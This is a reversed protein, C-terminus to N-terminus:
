QVQYVLVEAPTGEHAPVAVFCRNLEPVLRATRGLRGSAVQGLSQFHDPDAEKYVDVSGAGDGCAAYIRRTKVDFVADDVGKTIPLTFRANDITGIELVWNSVL